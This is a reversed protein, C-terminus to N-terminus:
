AGHRWHPGQDRKVDRTRDHHAELKPSEGVMRAHQRRRRAPDFGALECAGVATALNKVIRKREENVRRKDSPLQARKVSEANQELRTMLGAWENFLRDRVEGIDEGQLDLHSLLCGNCRDPDYAGPPRTKSEESLSGRDWEECRACHWRERSFGPKRQMDALIRVAEMPDRRPAPNLESQYVLAAVDFTYKPSSM